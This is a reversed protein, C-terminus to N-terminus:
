TADRRNGIESGESHFPARRNRQWVLCQQETESDPLFNGHPIFFFFFENRFGLCLDCQTEVMAADVAAACAAQEFAHDLQQFIWFLQLSTPLKECSRAVSCVSDAVCINPSIGRITPM